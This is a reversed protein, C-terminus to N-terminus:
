SGGWGPPGRPHGEQLGGDHGDDGWGPSGWIRREWDGKGVCGMRMDVGVGDTCHGRGQLPQGHHSPPGPIGVDGEAGTDRSTAMNRETGMDREM